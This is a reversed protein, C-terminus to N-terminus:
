NDYEMPIEEGDLVRYVGRALAEMEFEGPIPIIEGLFALYDKLTDIVYDAFALGGTIIVGDIKGKLVAACAGAEKATQYLMADVALRADQDGSEIRALAEKFDSTGIYAQMGSEAALKKLMRDQSYRGSYCLKVLGGIPLAGARQISYPGMGHLGDNVDVINGIELAAISFGSGLHIVIFNSEEVNKGIKEAAVRAVAKINLAHSRCKRQIEPLGSIRALDTFNDVTVPDVVYAKVKYKAAFYDALLAGHNSAHDSYTTNRLDELMNNGISYTGGKLPKLPGGRGAVALIRVKELESHLVKALMGKRYEFQDIVGPFKKLEEMNHQYNERLLPTERDFIAVKTSTNGPNIVLVGTQRNQTM